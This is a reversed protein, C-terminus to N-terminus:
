CGSITEAAMDTPPGRSTALLLLKDRYNGMLEFFLKITPKECTGQVLLEATGTICQCPVRSGSKGQHEIM